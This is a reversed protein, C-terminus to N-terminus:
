VQLSYFCNYYYCVVIYVFLLCLCLQVLVFLCRWSIATLWLLYWRLNIKINKCTESKCRTYRRRLWVDLMLMDQDGFPTRMIKPLHERSRISLTVSTSLFPWSQSLAVLSFMKSRFVSIFFFGVVYPAWDSCSTCTSIPLITLIRHCPRGRLSVEVPQKIRLSHKISMCLCLNFSFLLWLSQLLLAKTHVSRTCSRSSDSKMLRIYIQQFTTWTQVRRRIRWEFCFKELNRRVIFAFTM